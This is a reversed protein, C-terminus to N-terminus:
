NGREEVPTLIYEWVCEMVKEKTTLDLDDFANTNNQMVFQILENAYLVLRGGKYFDLYYKGEECKFGLKQMAKIFESTKM